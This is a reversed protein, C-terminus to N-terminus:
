MFFQVSCGNCCLFSQQRWGGCFPIAFVISKVGRSAVVRRESSVEATKQSCFAGLVRRAVLVIEAEVRRLFTHCFVMSRFGRTASVRRESSFEATKQSFNCRASQTAISRASTVGTARSSLFSAATSQWGSALPPRAHSAEQKKYLKKNQKNKTQKIAAEADEALKNLQHNLRRQLKSKSNYLAARRGRQNHLLEASEKCRQVKAHKCCEEQMRRCTASQGQIRSNPQARAPNTNGQPESRQSPPHGESVVRDSCTKQM